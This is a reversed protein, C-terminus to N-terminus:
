NGLVKRWLNVPYKIATSESTASSSVINMSVALLRAATEEVQSTVLAVMVDRVNPNTALLARFYPLVENGLRGLYTHKTQETDKGNEFEQAVEAQLLNVRSALLQFYIRFFDVSQASIGALLHPPLAWFREAVGANTEDRPSHIDTATHQTVLHATNTSPVQPTTHCISLVEQLWQLIIQPASTTSGTPSSQSITSLLIM